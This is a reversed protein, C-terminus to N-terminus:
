TKDKTKNVSTKGKTKNVLSKKTKTLFNQDLLLRGETYFNFVAAHCAIVIFTAVFCYGIINHNQKPKNNSDPM